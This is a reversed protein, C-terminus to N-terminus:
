CSLGLKQLDYMPILVDRVKLSCSGREPVSFSHMSIQYGNPIWKTDLQYGNPIRQYGTTDLPIWKIDVQDGSPRWKESDRWFINYQM